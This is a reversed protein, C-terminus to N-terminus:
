CIRTLCCRGLNRLVRSHSLYTRGCCCAELGADHMTDCVKPDFWVDTLVLEQLNALRSIAQMATPAPTIDGGDLDLAALGTPLVPLLDDFYPCAQEDLTLSQLGQMNSIPALTQVAATKDVASCCSLAALSLKTLQTLHQLVSQLAACHEQDSLIRKRSKVFVHTYRLEFSLLSTLKSLQLFHQQLVSCSELRLQQLQPLLATAAGGAPGAHSDAAAPYSLSRAKSRSSRTTARAHGTHLLPWMHMLSLRQLQTLKSCPLELEPLDSFRGFLGAYDVLGAYNVRLVIGQVQEGCQRLWTQLHQCQSVHYLSHQIDATTCSVAAAWAKCVLSCSLRHKLDVHQLISVLVAEPLDAASQSAANRCHCVLPCCVTISRRTDTQDLKFATTPLWITHQHGTIAEAM